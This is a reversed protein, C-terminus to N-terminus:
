GGVMVKFGGCSMRKMDFPIKGSMSKAIDPDQMVLKNARDRTAKNKYVIFSFVVTEGAKPKALKTFPVGFGVNLDDAVCEKFDIAGFKKFAKMGIKAMRKYAPLDKKRVPIVFGEVYM